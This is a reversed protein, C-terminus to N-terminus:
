PMNCMNQFIQIGVTGVALGEVPSKNYVVSDWPHGSQNLPRVSLKTLERIQVPLDATWIKAASFNEIEAKM